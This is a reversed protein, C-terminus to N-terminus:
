RCGASLPWDRRLVGGRGGLDCGTTGRLSHRRFQRPHPIRHSRRVAPHQRQLSAALPRTRPRAAGAAANERRRSRQRAAATRRCRSGVQTANETCRSGHLYRRAPAACLAVGRRGAQPRHDAKTSKKLMAGCAPRILDRRPIPNCVVFFGPWRSRQRPPTNSPSRNLQIQLAALLRWFAGRHPLLFIRQNKVSQLRNWLAPSVLLFKTTASYRRRHEALV